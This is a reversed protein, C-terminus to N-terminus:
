TGGTVGTGQAVTITQNKTTLDGLVEPNLDVLDTRYYM